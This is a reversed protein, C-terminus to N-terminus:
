VYLEEMFDCFTSSNNHTKSLSLKLLQSKTVAAICSYSAQFGALPLGPYTGRRCWNYNAHTYNSITFEDVFVITFRLADLGLLVECIQKRLFNHQPSSYNISRPTM